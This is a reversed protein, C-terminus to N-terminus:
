SKCYINISACIQFFLGRYPRPPPPPPCHKQPIVEGKCVNGRQTINKSAKENALKMRQQASMATDSYKEERGVVFFLKNLFKVAKVLAYQGAM